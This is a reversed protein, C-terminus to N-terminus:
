KLGLCWRSDLPPKRPEPFGNASVVNQRNGFDGFAKDLAIDLSGILSDTNCGNQRLRALGHNRQNDRRLERMGALWIGGEM